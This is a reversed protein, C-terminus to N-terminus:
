MKKGIYSSGGGGGLGGSHSSFYISDQSYFRLHRSTTGGEHETYLNENAVSDCHFTFGNITIIDGSQFVELTAQYTTDGNGNPDNINFWSDSRECDYIGSYDPPTQPDNNNSSVNEKECSFAIFCLILFPIFINKM